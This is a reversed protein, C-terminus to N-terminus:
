IFLCSILSPGEEGSSLAQEEESQSGLYVPFIPHSPIPHDQTVHHAIGLNDPAKGPLEALHLLGLQSSLSGSLSPHKAARVVAQVAATAM